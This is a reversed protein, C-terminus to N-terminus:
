NTRIIWLSLVSTSRDTEAFEARFKEYIGSSNSFRAYASLEVQSEKVLTVKYRPVINKALWSLSSQYIEPWDKWPPKSLPCTM